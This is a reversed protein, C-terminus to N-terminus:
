NAAGSAAPDRMSPSSLRYSYLSFLLSLTIALALPGIRSAASKWYLEHSTAYDLRATTSGALSPLHPTAAKQDAGAKDRDKLVHPLMAALDDDNMPQNSREVTRVLDNHFRSEEAVVANLISLVAVMLIFRNSPNRWGGIWGLAAAPLPVALSAPLTARPGVLWWFGFVAALSLLTRALLRM